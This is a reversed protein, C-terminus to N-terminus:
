IVAKGLRFRGSYNRRFLITRGQFGFEVLVNRMKRTIKSAHGFPAIADVLVPVDGCRFDTPQLRYERRLYAEAKEPTMFAYTGFGVLRKDEVHYVAQRLYIPPFILRFMDEVYWRKHLPSHTMLLAVHAFADTASSFGDGSKTSTPDVVAVSEAM